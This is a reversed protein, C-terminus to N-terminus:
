KKIFKSPSIMLKETIDFMAYDFESLFEVVMEETLGKGLNFEGILILSSKYKKDNTSSKVFGCLYKFFSNVFPNDVSKWFM